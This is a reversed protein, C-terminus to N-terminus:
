CNESISVKSFTNKSLMKFIFIVENASTLKSRTSELELVLQDRDKTLKEVEDNAEITKKLDDNEDQLQSIKALLTEFLAVTQVLLSKDATGPIHFMLQQLRSKTDAM